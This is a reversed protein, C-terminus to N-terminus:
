VARAAGPRAMPSVTMRSCGGRGKAPTEVHISLPHWCFSLRASPWGQGGGVRPRHLGLRAIRVFCPLYSRLCAVTDTHAWFLACVACRAFLVSHLCCITPSPLVIPYPWTCQFVASVILPVGDIAGTLAVFGRCGDARSDHQHGGRNIGISVGVLPLSPPAASFLLHSAILTVRALQLSM